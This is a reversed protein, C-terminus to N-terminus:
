RDTAALIPRVYDWIAEAREDAKEMDFEPSDNSQRTKHLGLAIADIINSDRKMRDRQKSTLATM